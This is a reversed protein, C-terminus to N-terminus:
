GEGDVAISEYAMALGVAAVLPVVFLIADIIIRGPGKWRSLPGIELPLYLLPQLAVLLFSALPVKNAEPDYGALSLGCLLVAACPATSSSDARRHLIALVMGGWSASAMLAIGMFRASHAHILVLALAGTMSALGFPFILSQYRGGLRELAHWEALVVAAFAVSILPDEPALALGAALSAIVRVLLGVWQPM